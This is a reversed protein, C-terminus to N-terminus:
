WEDINGEIEKIKIATKEFAHKGKYKVDGNNLLFEAFLVVIDSWCHGNNASGIHLRRYIVAGMQLYAYKGEWWLMSYLCIFYPPFQGVWRKAARMPDYLNIETM